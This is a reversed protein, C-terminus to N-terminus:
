FVAAVLPLDPELWAVEYLEDPTLWRVALHDAGPCPEGALLVARYGRLLLGPRLPVDPGLRGAVEIRVGLEEACERVLATPEDEGAEVKGGPLEWGGRLEAPTAREAALLRGDRVVAAAVVVRTGVPNM